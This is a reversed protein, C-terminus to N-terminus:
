PPPLSGRLVKLEIASPMAATRYIRQTAARFASADAAYIDTFTQPNRDILPFWSSQIQVMLRHGSRFAHSIAPLTLKVLTPKGPEFPEPREFSNRFKGRLVEARVLQQYGGRRLGNPNPQPDPLDEPYVDIVKVVFDSDTGSTSVWLSAEIPGAATLDETLEGSRYVLVDPRRAAFRQDGSMYRKDLHESLHGFYPVPKAPDSLYEDFGEGEDGPTATSLGGGPQLQIRMSTASRPPWQDYRQWQNTGTEFIWAEPPPPQREGDLHREFFPLEVKERYFLSTKAAFHVDGHLDGDTREWGGHQWPGMVLVNEAGPSQSEFARYTELSGWLDEADFWGGVTMVAPKVNKYRPRPDRAQWFADRTGHTMLDTWFPIEEKLYSAKANKLPGMRLFFDYVDGADHEFGWVAKKTPEPRVKGFSAYFDFADALCLAGNHHFDDGLFWDTVPAQPSVAKVAPHADVAAQAAYFGPYSIGWVGVRGNNAPVNKVLWEVTDFADTSEDVGGVSAAPRVDVFSGESMMRGRVDQHVFIYGKRVFLKSPAFKRLQRDNDSAPYNDVGYPQVSYPTRTLLIPYARSRDKPVYVATFLKVGDRMAIRHEHKTYHAAIATALQEPTDLSGAILDPRPTVTQAAAVQSRTQASSTCASTTLCLVVLAVSATRSTAVLM